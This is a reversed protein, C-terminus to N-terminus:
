QIEVFLYTLSNSLMNCNRCFTQGLTITLTKGGNYQQILSHEYYSAASKIVAGLAVQNPVITKESGRILFTISYKVQTLILVVNVKHTKVNRFLVLNLETRNPLM